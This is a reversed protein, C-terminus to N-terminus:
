HSHMGTWQRPLAMRGQGGGAPSKLEHKTGLWFQKTNVFWFNCTPSHTNVQLVVYILKKFNLLASFAKLTTKVQKIIHLIQNPHSILFFYQCIKGVHKWWYLNSLHGSSVKLREQVTDHSSLSTPFIVLPISHTSHSKKIGRLNNKKKKGGWYASKIKSLFFHKWLIIIIFVSELERKHWIWSCLSRVCQAILRERRVLM